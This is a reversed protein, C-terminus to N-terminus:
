GNRLRGPRPKTPIRCCCSFATQTGAFPSIAPVSRDPLRMRSKPSCRTALRKVTNIASANLGIWASCPSVLSQCRLARERIEGSSGNENGQHHNVYWLHACDNRKACGCVRMGHDTKSPHEM